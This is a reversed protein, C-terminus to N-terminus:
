ELRNYPGRDWYCSGSRAERLVLLEASVAAIRLGPRSGLASREGARPRFSTKFQLRENDLAAWTMDRGYVVRKMFPHTPNLVRIKYEKPDSAEWTDLQQETPQDPVDPVVVFHVAEFQEEAEKSWLIGNEAKFLESYGSDSHGFISQM